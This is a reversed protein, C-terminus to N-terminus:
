IVWATAMPARTSAAASSGRRFRDDADKPRLKKVLYNVRNGIQRSTRAVIPPDGGAGAPASPKLAM